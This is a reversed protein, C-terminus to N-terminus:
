ESEGLVHWIGPVVDLEPSVLILLLLVEGDRQARQMLSPRVSCPSHCTAHMFLNIILFRSVYSSQIRLDAALLSFNQSLPRDEM